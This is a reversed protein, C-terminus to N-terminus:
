GVKRQSEEANLSKPSSPMARRGSQLLRETRLQADKILADLDGEYEALIEDRIRHVEEVIPNETM